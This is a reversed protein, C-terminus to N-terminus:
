SASKGLCIASQMGGPFSFAIRGQCLWSGSGREGYFWLLPQWVASSLFIIEELIGDLDRHTGYFVNVFNNINGGMDREYLYQHAPLQCGKGALIEKYSSVFISVVDVEGLM